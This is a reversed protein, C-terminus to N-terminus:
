GNPLMREFYSPKPQWEIQSAKIRPVIQEETLYLPRDFKETAQESLGLARNTAYLFLVECGRPPRNGKNANCAAHALLHNGTQPTATPLLSLPWVHELNVTKGSTYFLEEERIRKGCLGCRRRQCFWLFRKGYVILTNASRGQRQKMGM